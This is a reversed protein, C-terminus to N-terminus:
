QALEPVETFRHSCLTTFEPQRRNRDHNGGVAAWIHELGAKLMQISLCNFRKLDHNNISRGILVAFNHDRVKWLNSMDAVVLTESRQRSRTLDADGHRVAIDDCKEVVIGKGVRIPEGLDSVGVGGSYTADSTSCSIPLRSLLGFADISDTSEKGVSRHATVERRIRSRSNLYVM